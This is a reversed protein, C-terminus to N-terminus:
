AQIRCTQATAPSARALRRMAIWASLNSDLWISGSAQYGMSAKGQRIGLVVPCRLRPIARQYMYKRLEGTTTTTM